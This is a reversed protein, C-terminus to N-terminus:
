SEVLRSAEPSDNEARAAYREALLACVMLQIQHFIMLPIILPGVMAQPFLAGAIPVGSALSKKSGCFVITIEDAKKAGAMISGYITALLAAALIVVDVLTIWALHIISFTSWIGEVVAASFATYVVILIVGRDTWSVLQRYRDLTRILLPRCVHGLVFPVLLQSAVHLVGEWFMGEGRRAMLLAVLIPTLVVGILNSAAASCVAAPVNGRGIATFAISSQVTSPMLCLLLLGDGIIPPSWLNSANRALLGLMPFMVFTAALVAIHVRWAGLGGLIASRSLKAGHLFFLIVIASKTIFAAVPVATGRVPLVTALAIVGFILTLFIDVKFCFFKM